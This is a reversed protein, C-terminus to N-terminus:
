RALAESLEPPLTIRPDSLIDSSRVAQKMLVALGVSGIGIAVRKPWSDASDPVGSRYGLQLGSGDVHYVAAVAGGLLERLSEVIERDVDVPDLSRTILRSVNALREAAQRRRESDEFWRANRIAGAAHAAITEARIFDEASWVRRTRTWCVLTGVQDDDIVLPSVLVSTARTQRVWDQNVVRPDALADTVAITQRRELALGSLSGKRPLTIDPGAVAEGTTSAVTLNDTVPDLLRVTVVDAGLQARAVESARSLVEDVSLTGGLHGALVRAHALGLQAEDAARHVRLVEDVTSALGRLTVPKALYVDAGCEFGATRHAGSTLVGSIMVVPTSSTLATARIRRCVEFGDVGPLDADLVVASPADNMVIRLADDGTAAGVTSFGAAELGAVLVLRVEDDDDVVLITPRVDSTM